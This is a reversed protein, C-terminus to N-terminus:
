CALQDQSIREEAANGTALSRSCYTCMISGCLVLSPVPRYKRSGARGTLGAPQDDFILPEQGASQGAFIVVNLDSVAVGFRRYQLVIDTLDVNLYM